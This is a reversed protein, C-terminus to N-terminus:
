RNERENEMLKDLSEKAIQINKNVFEFFEKMQENNDYMGFNKIGTNEYMQKFIKKMDLTEISKKAFEKFGPYDKYQEILSGIDEKGNDCKRVLLDIDKAIHFSYDLDFMPAMKVHKNGDEDESVILSSNDAKQDKLGILKSIFEQKIYDFKVKEIEAKDFERYRLAEEIKNLNESIYEENETYTVIEENDKLFNKSLIRGYGRDKKALTIEACEVGLTKAIYSAIFPCYLCYPNIVNSRGRYNLPLKSIFISGDTMIMYHDLFEGSNKSFIGPQVLYLTKSLDVFGDDRMAMKVPENNMYQHLFNVFYQYDPQFFKTTNPIQHYISVYHEINEYMDKDSKIRTMRTFEDLKKFRDSDKITDIYEKVESLEM